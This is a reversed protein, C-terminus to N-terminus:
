KRETALKVNCVMSKFQQVDKIFQKLINQHSLVIYFNFDNNSGKDGPSNSLQCQDALSKIEM